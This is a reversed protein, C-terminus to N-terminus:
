RLQRPRPMEITYFMGSRSVYTSDLSPWGYNSYTYDAPPMVIGDREKLQAVLYYFDEVTAFHKDLCIALLESRVWYADEYSDFMNIERMINNGVPRERSPLRADVGWPDRRTPRSMGAYDRVPGLVSGLAGRTRRAKKFANPDKYILTGLMGMGFDYATDAAMPKVVDDVLYRSFSKGETRFISALKSKKTKPPIIVPHTREPPPTSPAVKSAEKNEKEEAARDSAMPLAKKEPMKMEAM